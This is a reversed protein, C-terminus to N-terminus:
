HQPSRGTDLPSDHWSDLIRWVEREVAVGEPFRRSFHERLRPAESALYDDLARQGSLEYRVRYRGDTGAALCASLFFGTALLDPIHTEMMYHEYDQQLEPRVRAAVEYAVRARLAPSDHQEPKGPGGRLPQM